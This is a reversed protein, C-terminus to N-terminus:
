GVIMPYPVHTIFKGGRELFKCEKELIYDKFNWAGLFAVDVTEDFEKPSVIPIHVGPSYTNQKSPTTDIIYDIIDPGINCYNFITTSKYTAGYSVIKKDSVSSLLSMLNKKSEKVRNAFAVYTNFNTIGFNREKRIHELVSWNKTSSKNKHRIYIRNSGGHILLTDIKFIELDLFELINQLAVVSFIHAHEDYIQDYSGYELMKMLSPDEFVFVGNKSLVIKIAEFAETINQIHSMCNASYILDMKGHTGKFIIATDKNWFSSYTIYRMENTIKAFNDCPEIAYTTKPDFHKLFVGDNSGIELVRKPNFTQILNNAISKFHNQLTESISSHSMYTDNFMLSPSVFNILSVLYTDMNIGVDLDYFYENQFESKNKLYSNTIPQKGLSLFSKM